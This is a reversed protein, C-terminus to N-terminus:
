GGQQRMKEAHLAESVVRVREINQPDGKPGRKPLDISEIVRRYPEFGAQYASQGARVGQAWRQVGVTKARNQWKSTGASRVGSGYSGRQIAAQVGANYNEEAALTQSEWDARPNSVGAEYDPTSAQARRTWTDVIRNMPKINAM